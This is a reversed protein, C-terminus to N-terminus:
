LWDVSAVAYWSGITPRFHHCFHGWVESPKGYASPDQSCQLRENRHQMGGRVNWAIGRVDLFGPKQTHSVTTGDGPIESQLQGGEWAGHIRNLPWVKLPMVVGINWSRLPPPSLMTLTRGLPCFARFNKWVMRLNVQWFPSYIEESPWLRGGQLMWIIKQSSRHVWSYFSM